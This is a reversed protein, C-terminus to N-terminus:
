NSDESSCGDSIQNNKIKAPDIDMVRADIAIEWIRNADESIKHIPVVLRDSLFTRRPKGNMGGSKPNTAHVRKDANTEESGTEFRRAALFNKRNRGNNRTGAM